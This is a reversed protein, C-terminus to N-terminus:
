VHARGIQSINLLQAAGSITGTQMVAHFIEIHRLRMDYKASIDATSQVRNAASAAETNRRLCLFAKASSKFM